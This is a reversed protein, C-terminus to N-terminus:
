ITEIVGWKLFNVPVRCNLVVWNLAKETNKHLVYWLCGLIRKKLADQQKENVTVVLCSFLGGGFAFQTNGRAGKVVPAKGIAGFACSTKLVTSTSAREVSTLHIFLQIFKPVCTRSSSDLASARHPSIDM